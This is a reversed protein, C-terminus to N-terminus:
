MYSLEKEIIRAIEGARNWIMIHTGNQIWYDPQVREAPIIKDHTGHIHIIGEPIITNNWNLIIKFAHHLYATKTDKLIDTLVQKEDATTAGFRDFLIKNPHKFLGYPMLGSKLFFVLIGSMDPLEPKSKASSILFTKATSQQQAIETALMGGFSLGLIIPNKADIQLAMKHAYSEMTEKEEFAAWKLHQLNCGKIRLHKFIREDAGLGSICYIQKM